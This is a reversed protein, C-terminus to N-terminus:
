NKQFLYMFQHEYACHVLNVKKTLIFGANLVLQVITSLEEMTFLHEQVREAGAGGGGGVKPVLRERFVAQDNDADLSFDAHYVFDQFHVKTKTIREKAYRQPSVIILPNAPPLIPDFSERDVFHVAFSGGPALWDYCHRFFTAKDKLYYVTFYMCLLIDASGPPLVEYNQIDGKQWSSAPVEPHLSKAKSLMASSRDIGYVKSFGRSVLAAVHHGTGCGLDVITCEKSPEVTSLLADIEYDNKVKSLVLPDYIEAYLEDYVEVVENGPAATFGESVMRKKHVRKLAETVLYLLGIWVLVKGYPPMQRYCRTISELVKKM